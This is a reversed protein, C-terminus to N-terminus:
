RVLVLPQEPNIFVGPNKGMNSQSSTQGTVPLNSLHLATAVSQLVTEDGIHDGISKLSRPLEM